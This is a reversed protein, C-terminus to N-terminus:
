TTYRVLHPGYKVPLTELVICLGICLKQPGYLCQGAEPRNVFKPRRWFGSGRGGWLFFDRAVRKKSSFKKM